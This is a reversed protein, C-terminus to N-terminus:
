AAAAESASEATAKPKTAKDWYRTTRGEKATTLEIGAAKAQAPMSVTPWGTAALVEAATCGVPRRLLGVIAELKSGGRVTAAEGAATPAGETVVATGNVPAAAPKRRGRRPPPVPLKVKRKKSMASEKQTESKLVAGHQRLDLPSLGLLKAKARREVRQARKEAQIAAALLVAKAANEPSLARRNQQQLYVPIGDKRPDDTMGSCDVGDIITGEPLPALVPVTEKGAYPILFCRHSTQSRVGVTVPMSAM